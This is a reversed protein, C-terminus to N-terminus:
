RSNCNFSINLIMFPSLELFAFTENCVRDSNSLPFDHVKIIRFNWWRCSPELYGIWLRKLLISFKYARLNFLGFVDGAGSLDLSELFLM